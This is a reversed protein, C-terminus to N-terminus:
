KCSKPTIVAHEVPKTVLQASMPMGLWTPASARVMATRPRSQLWLATLAFAIAAVAVTSRRPSKHPVRQERMQHLAEFVLRSSPGLRVITLRFGDRQLPNRSAPLKQAIGTGALVPQKNALLFAFACERDLTSTTTDLPSGVFISDADVRDAYHEVFEAVSGCRTAVSIGRVIPKTM